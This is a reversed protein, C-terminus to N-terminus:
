LQDEERYEEHVVQKLLVNHLIVGTFPFSRCELFHGFIDDKFLRLLQKTLKREIAKVVTSFNCMSSIWGSFHDAYALKMMGQKNRSIESKAM